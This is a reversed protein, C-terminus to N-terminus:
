IERNKKLNDRERERYIYIYQYIMNRKVLMSGRFGNHSKTIIKYFLKSM